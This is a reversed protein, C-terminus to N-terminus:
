IGNQEYIKYYKNIIDETVEKEGISKDSTNNKSWFRLSKSTDMRLLKKIRSSFRANFKKWYLKESLSINNYVNKIDETSKFKSLIVENIKDAVRIYSKGDIKFYFKEIFDNRFKIQKTNIEGGNIYYNIKEVAEDFSTIIDCANIFFDKSKISYENLETQFVPKNLMWAENATTCNRQILIDCNILFDMIPENFILKINPIDKILDEYPKVLEAPHIKILFNYEPFKKALQLFLKSQDNFQVVENELIANIEELKLSSRKVYKQRIKNHDQGIYVTNTAWLIIPKNENLNYKNYFDKKTLSLKFLSPHYFDFRPCGTIQIKDKEIIGKEILLNNVYSGWSFQFDVLHTVQNYYGSTRIVTEEDLFLGETPLVINLLGLQNSLRLQNGKFNWELHDFILVVPKERYIKKEIDYGNSYYIEYGFKNKLYYGLLSYAPFDRTIYPTIIQIKIKENLDRLQIVGM